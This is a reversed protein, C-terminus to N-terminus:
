RLQYGNIAEWKWIRETNGVKHSHIWARYTAEGKTKPLLWWWLPSTSVCQLLLPGGEQNGHSKTWAGASEAAAHMACIRAFWPVGACGASSLRGVNRVLCNWLESGASLFREVLLKEYYELHCNQLLNWCCAVVAGERGHDGGSHHLQLSKGTSEM